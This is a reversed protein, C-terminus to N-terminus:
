ELKIIKHFISKGEIQFRVFCIGSYTQVDQLQFQRTFTGESCKETMLKKLLQGQNDILDIDIQEPTKIEFQIELFDICPTPSVQLNGIIGNEKEEISGWTIPTKSYYIRWASDIWAEWTIYFNFTNLGEAEGPFLQPNRCDVGLNSFNVYNNPDWENLFIEDFGNENQVYAQFFNEYFYGGKNKCGVGINCVDFDFAQDLEVEPIFEFPDYADPIFDKMQWISDDTFTYNLLPYIDASESELFEIHKATDINIPPEWGYSNSESYRVIDFSDLHKIWYVEQSLGYFTPCSCAVSDITTIESFVFHWDPAVQNATAVKLNDGELWAMKNPGTRIYRFSHDDFPSTILEQMPMIQNGAQDIFIVYIDTNGDPNAEFFVKGNEMFPKTYKVGPSQILCVSDYNGWLSQYYIATTTSDIRHEWVFGDYTLYLNSCNEQTPHLQKISSWWSQAFVNTANFFLFALILLTIKHVNLPKM